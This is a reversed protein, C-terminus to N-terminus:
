NSDKKVVITLLNVYGWLWLASFDVMVRLVDGALPGNGM